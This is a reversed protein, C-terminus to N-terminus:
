RTGAPAPIVASGKKQAESHESAGLEIMRRLTEFGKDQVVQEIAAMGQGQPAHDVAQKVAQYALVAHEAIIRENGTLKNLDMLGGHIIPSM